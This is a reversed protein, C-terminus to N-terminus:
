FPLEAQGSLRAVDRPHIWVTRTYEFDLGWVYWCCTASDTSGNFSGRPLGFVPRPIVIILSPPNECFLDARGPWPKNAEVCPEVFTCRLLMAVVPAVKLANLLIPTAKNFPPNSVVSAPKIVNIFNLDSACLEGSFDWQLHEYERCSPRSIDGTWVRFGHERLVNTIGNAGACPELIDGVLPRGQRVLEELLAVTPWSPTYFQDLGPQDVQPEPEDHLLDSIHLIDSM